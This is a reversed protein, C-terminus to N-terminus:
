KQVFNIRFSPQVITLMHFNFVFKVFLYKLETFYFPLKECFTYKAREQLNRSLSKQFETTM